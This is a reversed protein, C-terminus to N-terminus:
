ECYYLANRYKSKTYLDLNEFDEICSRLNEYKLRATDYEDAWEEASLGNYQDASCGSLIVISLVIPIFSLVKYNYKYM